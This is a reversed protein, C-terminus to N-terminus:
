TTLNSLTDYRCMCRCNVVQRAGGAPDGPYKMQRGGVEFLADNAIPPKDNMVLHDYRTRSDRLAIWRKFLTLNTSEAGLEFGVNAARTVETTAIFLARSRDVVVRRLKGIIQRVTSRRGIGDTLVGRVLSVTKATISKIREVTDSQRLVNIIRGRWGDTLSNVQSSTVPTPQQVVPRLPDRDKTEISVTTAKAAPAMLREYEREAANTGVSLYMAQLMSLHADETISLDLMALSVDPGLRELMQVLGGYMQNFRVLVLRVAVREQQRHWRLYQLYATQQQAPTM